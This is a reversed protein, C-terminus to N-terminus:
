PTKISEDPIPRRQVLGLFILLIGIASSGTIWRIQNDLSDPSIATPSQTMRTFTLHMAMLAPRPRAGNGVVDLCCMRRLPSDRDMARSRNGINKDQGDITGRDQPFPIASFGFPKLPILSRPVM